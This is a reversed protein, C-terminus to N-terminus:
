KRLIFRRKLRKRVVCEKLHRRFEDISKFNAHCYMCEIYHIKRKM